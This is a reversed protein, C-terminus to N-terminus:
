PSFTQNIWQGIARIQPISVEHEMPYSEWVVAYGLAQLHETSQLGLAHPVVPDMSGHSAFIPTLLNVKSHEEESFRQFTAYTSLALLGALKHKTRIGTYYTVAGGQSFGAVIINESAVGREIEREILAELLAHSADMGERDEKQMIDPGKIDYWAPMVLGGNVTVARDPAQPFVFRIPRQADLGLHSVVPPFDNATAGLGHLWIVSHAINKHTDDPFILEITQSNSM